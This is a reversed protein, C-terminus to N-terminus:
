PVQLFEGATRGDAACSCRSYTGFSGFRCFAGCHAALGLGSAGAAGVALQAAGRRARRFPRLAGARSSSCDDPVRGHPADRTGGGPGKGKEPATRQQCEALAMEVSMRAYRLYARLRRERRRRASGTGGGEARHAAMMM